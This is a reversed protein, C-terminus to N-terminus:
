DLSPIFCGIARTRPTRIPEGALTAELADILDHSTPAARTKGFAVFRDDIRGRYVLEGDASFVAAEPTVTAQVLRVLDHGPDRVARGPHRYEEVHREITEITEDPDPYVLWFAVGRGAYREHIEQLEPAYRNSIPCDSRVFLFLSAPKEGAFPDLPNGDLAVLRLADEDPPAGGTTPVACALALSALLGLAALPWSRNRDRHM